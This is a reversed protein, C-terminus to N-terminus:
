MSRRWTVGIEEGSPANLGSNELLMSCHRKLTQTLFLKERVSLTKRSDLWDSPRKLSLMTTVMPSSFFSDTRRIIELAQEKTVSAGTVLMQPWKPLGRDLLNEM